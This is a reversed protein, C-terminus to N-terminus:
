VHKIDGTIMIGNSHRYIMNTDFMFFTLEICYRTAFSFTLNARKLGNGNQFRTCSEKMDLSSSRHFKLIM